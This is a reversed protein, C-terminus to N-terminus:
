LTVHAHIQKVTSLEEVELEEAEEQRTLSSQPRSTSLSNWCSIWPFYNYNPCYEVNFDLNESM